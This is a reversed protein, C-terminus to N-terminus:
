VYCDLERIRRLVREPLGVPERGDRLAARIASSSVDVEVMPLLRARFSARLSPELSDRFETLQEEHWGPRPAFLWETLSFLRPLARWTALHELSDAGLLFGLRGEESADALLRELTDVSYSPGPRDTELTSVSEGPRADVVLHLFELRAAASAPVRHPKHPAHGSPMWLLERPAVAAQVADAMAVHGLHVPDFSGGFVVRM